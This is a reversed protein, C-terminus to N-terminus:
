EDPSYYYDLEEQKVIHYKFLDPSIGLSSIASKTEAIYSEDIDEATNIAPNISITLPDNSDIAITFDNFELFKIYDTAITQRINPSYSSRCKFNSYITISDEDLCLVARPNNSFPANPDTEQPYKYYVQYSQGLEPIDVIFSLANFMQRDFEALTISGSRVIANTNSVSLNTTNLEVAETISHSIDELYSNPLDLDGLLSNDLFITPQNNRSEIENDHNIITFIISIIIVMFTIQLLAAFVIIPSIKQLPFANNKM